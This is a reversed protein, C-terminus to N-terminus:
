GQTTTVPLGDRGQDPQGSQPDRHSDGHSETGPGRKEQRCPDCYGVFVFSDDKGIKMFNNQM